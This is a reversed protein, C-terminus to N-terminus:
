DCIGMSNVFEELEDYGEGRRAHRWEWQAVERLV